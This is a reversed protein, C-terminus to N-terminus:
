EEKKYGNSEAWSELSSQTCVDEPDYNKAEDMFEKESYVETMSMNSKIWDIASELLGTGIVSNLFDNDQRVLTAM